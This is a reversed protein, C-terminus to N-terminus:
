TVPLTVKLKVVFTHILLRNKLSHNLVGYNCKCCEIWRSACNLYQNVHHLCLISVVRGFLWLWVGSVIKVNGKVNKVSKSGAKQNGQLNESIILVRCIQHWVLFFELEENGKNAGLCDKWLPPELGLTYIREASTESQSCLRQCVQCHRRKEWKCSSQWERQVHCVCVLEWQKLSLKTKQHPM